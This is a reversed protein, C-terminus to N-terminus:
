SRIYLSIPFIYLDILYYQFYVSSLLCLYFIFRYFYVFIYVSFSHLDILQLFKCAFFFNISLLLCLCRNFLLFTVFLDLNLVQFVFAFRDFAFRVHFMSFVSFFFFFSFTTCGLVWGIHKTQGHKITSSEHSRFSHFKSM